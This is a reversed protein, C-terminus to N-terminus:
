KQGKYSALKRGDRYITLVSKDSNLEVSIKETFVTPHGGSTHGDDWGWMTATSYILIGMTEGYADRWAMHKSEDSAVANHWTGNIYYAGNLNSNTSSTKYNMNIVDPASANQRILIPFTGDTCHVSVAYMWTKHNEDMTATVKADTFKVNIDPNWPTAVTIKGPATSNFNDSGYSISINDTYGYVTETDTSSSKKVNAGTETANFNLTGFDHTKGERSYVIKNPDVSQWRNEQSSGKLRATTTIDRTEKVYSWYSDTRSESDTLNVSASSTSQSNDDERSSWNSLVKFSRPFSKNVAETKKTGDSYYTVWTLSTTVNDRNVTIQPNEIAYDTITVEKEVTITGPASSNFSNSGYTVSINDTYSYVTETSTSSKQQVNAGTETASFNITGFDHTKGERTYVIKNPDVSEWKNEKSSANLRATTTISRTENTYSWNGETKANSSTLNVNASGTSQSNDKEKSSWNSLVKFSRPFSKSVAETKKTGDSYKTVWTLSTTVDNQNVTIKPDTIEYDTVTVEKKVTITGPASSSKTNSGFAVNIKDSYAYTAVTATESSLNVSHGAESANFSIKEFKYQEGDRTYVFSNPDVSTWGNTQESGALKAKTQIDRTEATFSWYGDTKNETNTLKVSASGTSENANTESSTWSTYPTLVRNVRLNSTEKEETGDSFKTVYTIKALVYDNEVTLSPDRFEHGTVTKEKRVIIKGPATSNQLDSATSNGLRVSIINAYDYTETQANNEKLTAASSVKNTTFSLTGFDASIGQRTFVINNPDVSTWGNSQQSANLTVKATINRTEEKWKWEGDEKNITSAVTFTPVDTSETANNENATWNTTVVLSRPFEKRVPDKSETGNIFKTIFDLSVVVKDPTISMQKNRIEYGEVTNNSIRVLGPAVSRQTNNGYIVDIDDSYKHLSFGDKEGDAKLSGGMQKVNFAINDFTYTKGERTYVFGNPVVAEWENPMVSGDYLTADSALKRVQKNYKWYGNKVEDGSILNVRVDDSTIQSAMKQNSTWDTLCRLSRPANIHDHIKDKTGDDFIIIFDIDATVSDNYVTVKPNEFKYDDAKKDAKYLYVQENVQQKYAIYTTNIRNDFLAETYGQRDSTMPTVNDALEDVRYDEYGFEVELHDDKYTAREHMLSYDTTIKDATVGNSHDASYSDTKRWVTWNGETRNQAESGPKIGNVLALQYNFNKVDKKYPAIKDVKHQLIIEIKERTTEGSKWTTVKEFSCRERLSDLLERTKNEAVVKEIADEDLVSRTTNAYLPLVFTKPDNVKTERLYLNIKYETNYVGAVYSARTRAKSNIEKNKLWVFEARELTVSPYYYVVNDYEVTKSTIKVPYSAIQMDPYYHWVTDLELKNGENDKSEDRSINESSPRIDLQARTINYDERALHSYAEMKPYEKNDFLKETKHGDETRWLILSSTMDDSVRVRRATDIAHDLAVEMTVGKVVPTVPEDEQKTSLDSTLDGCATLCMVAAFMAVMWFFMKREM